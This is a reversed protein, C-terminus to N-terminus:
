HVIEPIFVNILKELKCFFNQQEKIDFERAFLPNQIILISILLGKKLYNLM